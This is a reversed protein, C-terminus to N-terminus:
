PTAESILYHRVDSAQQRVQDALVSIKQSREEMALSPPLDFTNYVVQLRHLWDHKLLAHIVNNRRIAAVREPQTELDAIVAAIDPADFPM